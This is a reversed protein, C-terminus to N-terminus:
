RLRLSLGCGGAGCAASDRAAASCRRLLQATGAGCQLAIATKEYTHGDIAIVPDQMLEQTIPCVFINPPVAQESRIPANADKAIRSRAKKKRKQSLNVYEQAEEVSPASAELVLWRREIEANLWVDDVRERPLILLIKNRERTRFADPM